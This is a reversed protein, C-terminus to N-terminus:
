YLFVLLGDSQLTPGSTIAIWEVQGGAELYVRDGNVMQNHKVYITTDAAPLNRTLVTTPAVLIRGGITAMTDQAVLTEVWLEAAHITLYKKNIAGLNIEYGGYPLVDFGGPDLTIDGAPNILISGTVGRDQLVETKLTVLTLVGSADTSLISAAAGPASSNSIAHTHNNAADNTSNYALTGPTKLAVDNANVTM